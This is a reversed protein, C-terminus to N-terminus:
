TKAEKQISMEMHGSTAPHPQNGDCNRVSSARQVGRSYQQEIWRQKTEFRKPLHEKFNCALNQMSSLKLALSVLFLL